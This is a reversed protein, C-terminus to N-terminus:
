SGDVGSQPIPHSQQNRSRSPHAQHESLEAARRAIGYLEIGLAEALDIHRDFSYNRPGAWIEGQEREKVMATELQRAIAIRTEIRSDAAAEEPIGLLSALELVTKPYQAVHQARATTISVITM